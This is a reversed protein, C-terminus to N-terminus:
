NNLRGSQAIFQWLHQTCRVTLRTKAKLTEVVSRVFQNTQLMSFRLTLKTPWVQESKLSSSPRLRVRQYMCYMIRNEANGARCKSALSLHYFQVMFCSAICPHMYVGDRWWACLYLKDTDSPLPLFATSASINVPHKTYSGRLPKSERTNSFM